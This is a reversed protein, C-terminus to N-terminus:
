EDTGAGDEDGVLVVLRLRRCFGGFQCAQLQPTLEEGFGTHVDAREGVRLAEGGVLADDQFVVPDEEFTGGEFRLQTFDTDVAVAHEAQEHLTRM